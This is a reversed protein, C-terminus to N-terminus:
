RKRANDQMIQMKSKAYLVDQAFMYDTVVSEMCSNIERLLDNFSKKQKFKLSKREAYTMGGWIGDQEDNFIATDLCASKLHCRACISKAEQEASPDDESFFLDTMDSCEADAWSQYKFTKMLTMM